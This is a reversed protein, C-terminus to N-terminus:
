MSHSMLMVGRYNRRRRAWAHEAPLGKTRPRDWVRSAVVRTTRGPVGSAARRSVSSSSYQSCIGTSWRKIRVPRMLPHTAMVDRVGRRAPTFRQPDRHRRSGADCRGAGPVAIAVARSRNLSSTTPTLMASSSAGATASAKLVQRRTFTLADYRM